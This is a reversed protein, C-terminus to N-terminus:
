MLPPLSSVRAGGASPEAGAAATAPFSCIWGGKMPLLSISWSQPLLQLVPLLSRPPSPPVQPLVSLHCSFSPSVRRLFGHHCLATGEASDCHLWRHKSRARCPVPVGAHCLELAPSAELRAVNPFLHLLEAASAEGPVWPMPLPFLACPFSFSSCSRCRARVPAPELRDFDIGLNKCNSFYQRIHPFHFRDRDRCGFSPNLSPFCSGPSTRLATPVLSVTSGPAVSCWFSALSFPSSLFGGLWTGQGTGPLIPVLPCAVQLPWGAEPWGLAGWLAGTGMGSERQPLSPLLRQHQM